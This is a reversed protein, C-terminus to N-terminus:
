AERTIAAYQDATLLTDLEAADAPRVRLMWGEGYPDANVLAPDDTLATNVGLVEGSLPSFLDSATKVSDISGFPQHQAVSAGAEPLDVYVVDGLQDQAFHTIGVAAVGEEMRVWEHQETYRLDEPIM